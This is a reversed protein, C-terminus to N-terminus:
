AIIIKFHPYKVYMDSKSAAQPAPCASETQWLDQHERISKMWDIESIEIVQQVRHAGPNIVGPKPKLIFAGHM